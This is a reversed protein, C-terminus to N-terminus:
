NVIGLKLKVYTGINLLITKLTPAGGRAIKLLEPQLIDVPLVTPAFNLTRKLFYVMNQKYWLYVGQEDWLKGRLTDYM